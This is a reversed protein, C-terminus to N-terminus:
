GSLNRLSTPLVHAIAGFLATVCTTSAIIM